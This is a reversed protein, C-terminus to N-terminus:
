MDAPQFSKARIENARITNELQMVATEFQCESVGNPYLRHFMQRQNDTLKDLLQLLLGGRYIERSDDQIKVYSKYAEM